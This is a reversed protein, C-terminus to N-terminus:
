LLKGPEKNEEAVGIKLIAACPYFLLAACVGSIAAALLCDLSVFPRWWRHGAAFMLPLSSRSFLECVFGFLMIVGYHKLNIQNKAKYLAVFAITYGIAAAGAPSGNLRDATITFVFIFLLSSPMPAFAALAAVFAHTPNPVFDSMGANLKITKFLALTFIALLLLLTIKLANM